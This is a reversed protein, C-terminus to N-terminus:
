NITLTRATPCGGTRPNPCGTTRWVSLGGKVIQLTVMSSQHLAEADFREDFRQEVTIVDAQQLELLYKCVTSKSMSCDAALTVKSPWCQHKENAYNALVILLLKAGAPTVNQEIAWTIAKVSM